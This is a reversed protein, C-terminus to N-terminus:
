SVLWALAVADALRQVALDGGEAVEISLIEM